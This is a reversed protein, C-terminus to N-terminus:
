RRNTIAIRRLMELEETDSDNEDSDNKDEASDNENEEEDLFDSELKKSPIPIIGSICNRNTAGRIEVIQMAIFRQFGIYSFSRVNDIVYKAGTFEGEKHYAVGNKLMVPNGFIKDSHASAFIEYVDDMTERDHDIQGFDKVCRVFDRDRYSGNYLLNVLKLFCKRTKKLIKNNMSNIRAYDACVKDVHKSPMANDEAYEFMETFINIYTEFDSDGKLHGFQMSMYSQKSGGRENKPIFFFSNGGSGEFSAMCIATLLVIKNNQPNKALQALKYAVVANEISYPFRSIAKGMTTVNLSEDVLELRVLKNIITNYKNVNIELMDRADLEEALLEIVMEYPLIREMDSLDCSKLNNWTARTILPYYKGKKTRGCRGKRQTLKDRPAFETILTLGSGNASSHPTKQLCTDIIIDIDPITLASEAVNTSVVVKIKGDTRVAVAEDSETKDVQSHLGCVVMNPNRRADLDSVIGEVDSSGPVFILINDVGNYVQDFKAIVASVMRKPDDFTIDSGSFATEIPYSRGEAVLNTTRFGSFDMNGLTASMVVLKKLLGQKLAKCALKFTGMNEQTTHHAEDLVFVFNDAFKRIGRFSKGALFKKNNSLVRKLCNFGHKTTVFKIRANDKYHVDGHCAYGVDDTNAVNDSIFNHIATTAVTLPITVMCSLGAEAIAISSMVTKGSGTEAGIVVIDTEENSVALVFDQKIKNFPLDSPISNRSKLLMYSM